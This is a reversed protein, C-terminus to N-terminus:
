QKYHWIKTKELDCCTMKRISEMNELRKKKTQSQHIFKYQPLYYTNEGLFKDFIYGNAITAKEIGAHLKYVDMIFECKRFSLFQHKANLFNFPKEIINTFALKKLAIPDHKIVQYYKMIRYLTNAKIRCNDFLNKKIWHAGDVKDSSGIGTRRYKDYIDQASRTLKEEKLQEKKSNKGRRKSSKINPKTEKILADLAVDFDTINKNQDIIKCGNEDDIVLKRKAKSKKPKAKITESVPMFNRVDM